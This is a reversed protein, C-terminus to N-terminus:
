GRGGTCKSYVAWGVGLMAATLTGTVATVIRSQQTAMRKATAYSIDPRFTVMTYLPIWGSPEGPPFAVRSLVPILSALSKDRRSSLSFLFDDLAKRFLYLPTTVSHRM